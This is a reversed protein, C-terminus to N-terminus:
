PREDRELTRRLAKIERQDIRVEGKEGSAGNGQQQDLSVLVAAISAIFYSFVGVAYLMLFFGLLRGVATVPHLESGVKTVLAASWWLADGFDTITGGSAGTELAYGAAAGILVVLVSILELQDLRLRRFIAM